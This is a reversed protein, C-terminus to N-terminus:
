SFAHCKEWRSAGVRLAVGFFTDANRDLKSGGVRKGPANGLKLEGPGIALDVVVDGVDVAIWKGGFAHNERWGHGPVCVVWSALWDDARSTFRNAESCVVLWIVSVGHDTVLVGAQGEADARASRSDHLAGVGIHGDAVAVM